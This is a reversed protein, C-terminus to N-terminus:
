KTSKNWLPLAGTTNVYQNLYALEESKQSVSSVTTPKGAITTTINSIECKKAYFSVTHGAALYRAAAYRIGQDTGDGNVYRGIRNTSGSKPQNDVTRKIGLPNATEGIKFVYDDVTIIYVWSLHSDFLIDDNINTYVWKETTCRKADVECVLKFDDGNYDAMTPGHLSLKATPTLSTFQNAVNAANFGLIPTTNIM